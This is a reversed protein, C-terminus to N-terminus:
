IVTSPAATESTPPIVGEVDVPQQWESSLLGATYQTYSAVSVTASAPVKNSAQPDTEDGSGGGCAVLLLASGAILLAQQLKM